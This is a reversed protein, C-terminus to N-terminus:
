RRRACEKTQLRGHSIRDNKVYTYRAQRRARSASNACDDRSSPTILEVASRLGVYKGNSRNRVVLSRPAVVRRALSVHILFFSSIREDIELPLCRLFWPSTRADGPVDRRQREHENELTAASRKMRLTSAAWPVHTGAFYVPWVTPPQAQRLAVETVHGRRCVRARGADGYGVQPSRGQIADVPKYPITGKTDQLNHRLQGLLM